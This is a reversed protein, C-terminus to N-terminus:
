WRILILTVESKDVYSSAQIDALCPLKVIQLAGHFIFIHSNM